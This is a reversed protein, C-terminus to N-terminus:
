GERGEPPECHGVHAAPPRQHGGAPGAPGGVASPICPIARSHPSACAELLLASPLASSHPWTLDLLLAWPEWPPLNCGCVCLGWGGVRRWVRGGVTPVVDKELSDIDAHLQGLLARVGPVVHEQPTPSQAAPTAWWHLVLVAMMVVAVVFAGDPRELIAATPLDTTDQVRFACKV